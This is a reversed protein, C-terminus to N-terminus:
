YINELSTKEDQEFWIICQTFRNKALPYHKLKHIYKIANSNGCIKELTDYEAISMPLDPFIQKVIPSEKEFDTDDYRDFGYQPYDSILKNKLSTGTLNEYSDDNCFNITNDTFMVGDPVDEIDILLYEEKIIVGKRRACGELYRKQIGSSTLINYKDYLTKDFLNYEFASRIIDKLTEENLPFDPSSNKHTFLLMINDDWKCYYGHEKYAQSWLKVIVGFGVIGYKAEILEIKYDPSVDM